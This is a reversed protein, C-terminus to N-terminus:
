RTTRGQLSVGVPLHDSAGTTDLGSSPRGFRRPTQNSNLMSPCRVVEASDTSIKMGAEGTLLGRSVLLQDFM